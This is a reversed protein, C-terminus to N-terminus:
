SPSHEHVGGGLDFLEFHYLIMVVQCKNAFSLFVAVFISNYLERQFTKIIHGSGTLVFTIYLSLIVVSFRFLVNNKQLIVWICQSNTLICIYWFCWEFIYELCLDSLVGVSYFQVVLAYSCVLAYLLLILLLLIFSAWRPMYEMLNWTKEGEHLVCPM